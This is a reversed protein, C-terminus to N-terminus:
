ATKSKKRRPIEELIIERAVLACFIMGQLIVWWFKAFWYWFPGLPLDPQIQAFGDAHTIKLHDMDWHNLTHIAWAFVTLKEGPVIQDIEVLDESKFYSVLCNEPDLAYYLMCPVHFKVANAAKKGTNRLDFKWYAGIGRLFYIESKPQLTDYLNQPLRFEGYTAVATLRASPINYNKWLQAATYLICGALVLIIIKPNTRNM